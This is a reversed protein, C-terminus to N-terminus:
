CHRFTLQFLPHFAISAVARIKSEPACGGSCPAATKLRRNAPPVLETEDAKRHVHRLMDRWMGGNAPVVTRTRELTEKFLTAYGYNGAGM